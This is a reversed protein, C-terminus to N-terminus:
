VQSTEAGMEQDPLSLLTSPLEDADSGVLCPGIQVESDDSDQGERSLDLFEKGGDVVYEIDGDTM